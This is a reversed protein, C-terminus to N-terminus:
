LPQAPRGAKLQNIIDGTISGHPIFHQLFSNCFRNLLYFNESDISVKIIEQFTQDMTYKILKILGFPLADTKGHAALNSCTACLLHLEEDQLVLKTNSEWKTHCTSCRSIDPMAGLLNLIKIKFITTTLDAKQPYNVLHELTSILLQFLQPFDESTTALKQFIELIQIAYLSNNLNDRLSAWSSITICQTITYSRPTKHLQFKCMNISEIHGSFSSDIKRGGRASAEIMGLDPSYISVLFDSEGIPRKKLIIGETTISRM